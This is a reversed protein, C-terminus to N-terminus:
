SILPSFSALPTQWCNGANLYARILRLIHKDGVKRAGSAMLIDHNVRDFFKELDMDVVYRYGLSINERPKRM